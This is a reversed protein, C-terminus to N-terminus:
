FGLKMSHTGMRWHARLFSLRVLVLRPSFSSNTSNSFISSRSFTPTSRSTLSRWWCTIRLWKKWTNRANLRPKSSLMRETKKAGSKLISKFKRCRMRVNRSLRSTLWNFPRTLKNLTQKHMTKRTPSTSLTLKHMGVKPNKTSLFERTQNM